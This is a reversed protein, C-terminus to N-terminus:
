TSVAKIALSLSTDHYIHYARLCTVQHACHEKVSCLFMFTTYRRYADRKKRTPISSSSTLTIRQWNGKICIM